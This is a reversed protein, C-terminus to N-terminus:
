PGPQGALLPQLLKENIISYNAYEVNVTLTNNIITGLTSTGFRINTINTTTNTITTVLKWVDDTSTSTIRETTATTITTSTVNNAVVTNTSVISTSISGTVVPTANTTTSSTSASEFTSTNTTTTKAVIQDYTSAIDYESSPTDLPPSDIRVFKVYTGIEPAITGSQLNDNNDKWYQTIPIIRKYVGSITATSQTFSTIITPEDFLPTVSVIYLSTSIPTVVTVTGGETTTDPAPDPTVTIELSFDTYFIVTTSETSLAM